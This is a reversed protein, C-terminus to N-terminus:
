LGKFYPSLIIAISPKVGIAACLAIKDRKGFIIHPKMLFPVVFAAVTDPIDGIHPVVIAAMGIPAM